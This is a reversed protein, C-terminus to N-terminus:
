NKADLDIELQRLVKAAEIRDDFPFEQKGIIQGTEHGKGAICIVDGAQAARLAKEIALRRDPEIIYRDSSRNNAICTERYSKEIAAIILMPDESRPNDSTIWARDALKAAVAGLQTRRAPDRDGGAGFVVIL